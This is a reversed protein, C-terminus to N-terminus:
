VKGFPKFSTASGQRFHKFCNPFLVRHFRWHRSRILVFSCTNIIIYVTPKILIPKKVRQVYNKYVQLVLWHISLISHLTWVIAEDLEDPWQGVLAHGWLGHSTMKGHNEASAAFWFVNSVLHRRFASGLCSTLATQVGASISLLAHTLWSFVLFVVAVSASGESRQYGDLIRYSLISILLRM